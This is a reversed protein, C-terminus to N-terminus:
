ECAPAPLFEISKIEQSIEYDHYNLVVDDLVGNDYLTGRLEYLSQAEEDGRAFYGLNVRWYEGDLAALEPIEDGRNYALREDLSTIVANVNMVGTDDFGDYIDASYFRKGARAKQILNFTHAMPFVVPADYINNEDKPASVHVKLGDDELRAEGKRADVVKGLATRELGFNYSQDAVNEYSVITSKMKLPPNDVYVYEMDFDFQSSWGVCDPRAEYTVQGKVSIVKSGPKTKILNIDYVAKHGVMDQLVPAYEAKAAHGGTVSSMLVVCFAAALKQCLRTHQNPM